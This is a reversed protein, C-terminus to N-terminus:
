VDELTGAENVENHTLVDDVWQDLDAEVKRGFRLSDLPAACGV